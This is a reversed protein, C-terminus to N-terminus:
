PKALPGLRRASEALLDQADLEIVRVGSKDGMALKRGDDSFQCFRATESIPHVALPILTKSPEDFEWVRVLAAGETAVRRGDPSICVKSFTGGGAVPVSALLSGAPLSRLELVGSGTTFRSRPPESSGVVLRRGAADIALSRVLYPTKVSFIQRGSALDVIDIRAERLLSSFAALTMKQDTALSEVCNAKFWGLPIRQWAEGWWRWL